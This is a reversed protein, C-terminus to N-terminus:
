GAVFDRVIEAILAPHTRHAIHAHGHLLHIRAGPIAEAAADTARRIEETSGSGSLLLTPATIRDFQGPRRVWSEEARAERAMYPRGRDPRPWEPGARMADIQDDTFELLDRFMLVTAGERDGRAM